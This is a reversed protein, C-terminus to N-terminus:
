PCNYLRFYRNNVIAFDSQNFYYHFMFDKLNKYTKLLPLSYIQQKPRRPEFGLCVVMEPIYRLRTARVGQSRSTMLEFRIKGVM